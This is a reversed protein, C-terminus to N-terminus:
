PENVGCGKELARPYFGGERVQPVAFTIEGVRTRMTKSKFGNAYGCREPTHQCPGANLHEAREAQMAANIVIRMLEPQVDLGHEQVQEMLEAPVTFDNQYTM